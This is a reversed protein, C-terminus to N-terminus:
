INSSMCDWFKAKKGFSTGYEVEVERNELQNQMEYIDAATHLYHPDFQDNDEEENYLSERAGMMMELWQFNHWQFREHM